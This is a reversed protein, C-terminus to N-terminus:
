QKVPVSGAAPTNFDLENQPVDFYDMYNYEMFCAMPTNGPTGALSAPVNVIAGARGGGASLPATVGWRRADFFSVGRFVLAVRRERRLEELAQAKTLGTGAVPALGSSQFNRVEDIVQLGQDTQGTYILAEAKMLANEEYTCAYNVFGQGSITSYSGGNEIDRAIWRTGFQLGRSRKNADNLVGQQFNRNLREDGPKYEQILRESIFLWQNQQNALLYPFTFGSVDNSGDPTLGKKFINDSATLGQNSWALISNWEAATLDTAKKSVLLNRAKYTNIQRIWQAPTVLHATSNDSFSPIINQMVAYYDADNTIGSLVSACLDFNRTAEAIIDQRSVFNNNVTFNFTTDNNIIGAIYMSGIRSYCYGKWWFAWARLVAKKTAANGSLTLAPNEVAYLITNAQKIFYYCYSWEYQFANREGADRSNFSQLTTKQTAGIPTVFSRGDPLTIKYVQDTWRFAFNGYPIYCEDGLIIQQAWAIEQINTAGEQPVNVIPRAIIGQAYSEIGAETVLASAPTPANPNILQLESKKCALAGIAVIAAFLLLKNKYM